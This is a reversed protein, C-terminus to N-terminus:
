IPAVGLRGILADLGACLDEHLVQGEEGFSVRLIPFVGCFTRDPM